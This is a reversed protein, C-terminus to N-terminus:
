VQGLELVVWLLAPVLSLFSEPGALVTPAEVQESPSGVWKFPAGVLLLCAESAGM